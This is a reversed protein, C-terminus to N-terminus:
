SIKSFQSAYLREILHKGLQNRIANEIRTPLSNDNALKVENVAATEEIELLLKPPLARAVSLQCVQASQNCGILTFDSKMEWGFSELQSTANAAVDAQHWMLSYPYGKMYFDDTRKCLINRM